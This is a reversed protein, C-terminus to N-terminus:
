NVYAIQVLALTVLGIALLALCARGRKTPAANGLIFQVVIGFAICFNIAVHGALGIGTGAPLHDRLVTAVAIGFLTAGLLRPWFGAEAAHLGLVRCLTVPVFLLFLGLGAELVAELFLLQTVM